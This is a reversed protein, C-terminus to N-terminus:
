LEVFRFFIEYFIPFFTFVCVCFCWSYMELQRINQLWYFTITKIVDVWILLWVGAFTCKKRERDEEIKRKSCSRWGIQKMYKSIWPTMAITTATSSQSLPPPSSSSWTMTWQERKWLAKSSFIFYIEISNLTKNTSASARMQLAWICWYLFKSSRNFALVYLAREVGFLDYRFSNSSLLRFTDHYLVCCCIISYM